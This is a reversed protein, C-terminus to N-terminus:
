IGHLRVSLGQEVGSVTTPVVAAKDFTGHLRVSLGQEVRSPAESRQPLYCNAAAHVVQIDEDGPAHGLAM